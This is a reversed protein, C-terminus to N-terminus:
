LSFCTRNGSRFCIPDSKKVYHIGGLEMTNNLIKKNIKMLKNKDQPEDVVHMKKHFKPCLGLTNEISDGGM